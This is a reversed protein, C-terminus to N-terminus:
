VRVGPSPRLGLATSSEPAPLSGHVLKAQADAFQERTGCGLEHMRAAGIKQHLKRM